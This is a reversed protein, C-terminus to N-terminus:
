FRGRGIDLVNGEEKEDDKGILRQQYRLCHRLRFLERCDEITKRKLAM